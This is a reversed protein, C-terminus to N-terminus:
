LKEVITNILSGGWEVVTYGKRKNKLSNLDQLPINIKYELAQTLMMVRIITEPKPNIILAAQEEYQKGSFHIFNYNNEEMRPLWYMIFENAEKRNLGLYALKEELFAATEKGAIVFGDKPIIQKHPKGEWFLAYYEMGNKDWLTGNPEAIVQWGHTPYKPYTHTLAGNYNLQVEITQKQTPYLYIVPKEIEFQKLKIECKYYAHEKINFDFMIEQYGNSSIDMRCEGLPIDKILFFGTSDTLAGRNIGDEGRLTVTVLPIAEKSNLEMVNGEFITIPYRKSNIDIKSQNENFEFNNSITKCGSLSVALLLIFIFSVKM